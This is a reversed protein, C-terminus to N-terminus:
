TEYSSKELFLSGFSEPAAGGRGSGHYYGVVMADQWWIMTYNRWRVLEPININYYLIILDHLWIMKCKCCELM